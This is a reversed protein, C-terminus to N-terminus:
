ARDFSDGRKLPLQSILEEFENGFKRQSGFLFSLPTKISLPTIIRVDNVKYGIYADTSEGCPQTAFVATSCLFLLLLLRAGCPVERRWCGRATTPQFSMM